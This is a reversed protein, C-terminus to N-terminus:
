IDQRTQRYVSRLCHRGYQETIEEKQVEIAYVSPSHEFIKKAERVASEETPFINDLDGSLIDDNYTIIVSYAILRM